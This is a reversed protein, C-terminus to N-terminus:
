ALQNMETSKSRIKYFQSMPTEVISLEVWAAEEIEKNSTLAALRAISTLLYVDAHKLESTSQFDYLPLAFELARSYESFIETNRMLEIRLSKELKKSISPRSLLLTKEASTILEMASDNKQRMNATSRLQAIRLRCETEASVPSHKVLLSEASEVCERDRGLTYLADIERLTLDALLENNSFGANVLVNRQKRLRKVATKPDVIELLRCLTYNAAVYEFSAATYKREVDLVWLKMSEPNSDSINTSSLMKSAQGLILSSQALVLDSFVVYREESTLSTPLEESNVDRSLNFRHYWNTLVQMESSRKDSLDQSTLHDALLELSSKVLGMRGEYLGRRIMSNLHQEVTTHCTDHSLASEKGHEDPKYIEQLTHLSLSVSKHLEDDIRLPDTTAFQSKAFKMINAVSWTSLGQLFTIARLPTWIPSSAVATPLKQYFNSLAAVLDEFNEHEAFLRPDIIDATAISWFNILQRIDEAVLSEAGSPFSVLELALIHALLVKDSVLSMNEALTMAEEFLQTSSSHGRWSSIVRLLESHYHKGEILDSIKSAVFLNSSDSQNSAEPATENALHSPETLWSQTGSYIALTLLEEGDIDTTYDAQKAFEKCWHLYKEVEGYQGLRNTLRLLKLNLTLLYPTSGLDISRSLSDLRDMAEQYQGDQVLADAAILWARLAEDSTVGLRRTSSRAETVLHHENRDVANMPM